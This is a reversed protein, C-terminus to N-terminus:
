PHPRWEPQLERSDPRKTLLTLDWGSGAGVLVTYIHESKNFAIRRGGPFWAPEVYFLLDDTLRIENPGDAGMVYLEPQGASGSDVFAM